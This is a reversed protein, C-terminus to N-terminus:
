AGSGWGSGGTSLLSLSQYKGCARFKVCCWTMNKILSLKSRAPVTPNRHAYGPYLVRLLDLLITWVRDKFKLNNAGWNWFCADSQTMSRQSLKPIKVSPIQNRKFNLFGWMKQSEKEHKQAAPM